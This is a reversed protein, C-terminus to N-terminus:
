AQEKYWFIENRFAKMEMKLKDLEKRLRQVELKSGVDETPVATEIYGAKALAEIVSLKVNSVNNVARWLTTHNVGSKASITRLSDPHNNLSQLQNKLNNM